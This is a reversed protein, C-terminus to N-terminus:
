GAAMWATTISTTLSGETEAATLDAVGALLLLLGLGRMWLTLNKMAFAVM